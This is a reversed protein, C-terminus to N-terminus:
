LWTDAIDTHATSTTPAEEEEDEQQPEHQPPPQHHNLTTASPAGQRALASLSEPAAARAATRTRCLWRSALEVLLAVPLLYLLLRPWLAVVLALLWLTCLLGLVQLALRAPPPLKLLVAPLRRTNHASAASVPHQPPPTAAGASQNGAAAEATGARASLSAAAQQRRQRLVAMRPEMTPQQTASRQRGEQVAASVLGALDGKGKSSGGGGRVAASIARLRSRAAQSTAAFSPQAYRRDRSLLYEARAAEAGHRTLVLCHAVTAADVPRWSQLLQADGTDGFQARLSAVEVSGEAEPQVAARMICSRKYVTGAHPRGDLKVTATHSGTISREEVTLHKRTHSIYVLKDRSKAVQLTLWSM